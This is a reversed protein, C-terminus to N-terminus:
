PVLYWWFDLWCIKFGVFNVLKKEEDKSSKRFFANREMTKPNPLVCLHSNKHQALGIMRSKLWSMAHISILSSKKKRLHFCRICLFAGSIKLTTTSIHQFNRVQSIPFNPDMKWRFKWGNPSESSRSETRLPRGGPLFYVFIRWFSWSHRIQTFIRHLSISPDLHQKVFKSPDQWFSVM